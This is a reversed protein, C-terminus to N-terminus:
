PKEGDLVVLAAILARIRDMYDYGGHGMPQRMAERAAEVVRELKADKYGLAYALARDREDKLREIKNVLAVIRNPLPENGEREAEIKWGVLQEDTVIMQEDM